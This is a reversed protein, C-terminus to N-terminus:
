RELWAKVGNANLIKSKIDYIVNNGEIKHRNQFAVFPLDSKIIKKNLDYIMEDSKCILNQSNKYVVNDKFKAIKGRYEVFNSSLNHEMKEDFYIGFYGYFEDKDKFRIVQRANHNAFIQSSNLEFSVINNGQMSSLSFDDVVEQSVYPTQVMLFAMFVSFIAVIAYFFKIAM